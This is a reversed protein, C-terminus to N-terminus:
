DSSDDEAEDLLSIRRWGLKAASLYDVKIMWRGDGTEVVSCAVTGIDSDGSLQEDVSFKELREAIKEARARTPVTIDAIQEPISICDGVEELYQELYDAM